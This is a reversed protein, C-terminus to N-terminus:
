TNGKLKTLPQWIKMGSGLLCKSGREEDEEVKDVGSQKGNGRERRCDQKSHGLCTGGSGEWRGAGWKM